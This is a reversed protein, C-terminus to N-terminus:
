PTSTNLLSISYSAGLDNNFVDVGKSDWFRTTDKASGDARHATDLNSGGSFDNRSYIRGLNSTFDEPNQKVNIQGERVDSSQIQMERGPGVASRLLIDEIRVDYGYRKPNSINITSAVRPM